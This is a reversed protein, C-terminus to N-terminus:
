SGLGHEKYGPSPGHHLFCKTRINQALEPGKCHHTHARGERLQFVIKNGLVEAIRGM